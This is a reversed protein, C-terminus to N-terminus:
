LSKTGPSWGGARKWGTNTGLPVRIEEAPDRAVGLGDVHHAGNPRQIGTRVRERILEHEFDHPLDVSPSYPLARPLCTGRRLGM